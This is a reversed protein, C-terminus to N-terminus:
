DHRVVLSSHKILIAKFVIIIELLNIHIKFQTAMFTSDASLDFSSVAM